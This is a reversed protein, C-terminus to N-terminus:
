LPLSVYKSIGKLERIAVALAVLGIIAICLKIGTMYPYWAPLPALDVILVHTSHVYEVHITYSDIGEMLVFDTPQEDLSVKLDATSTVLAKPVIITSAGITGTPGSLRVSIRKAVSDFDLGLVTSNTEVYMSYLSWTLTVRIKGGPLPEIPLGLPYMHKLYSLALLEHYSLEGRKARETLDRIYEQHLEQYRMAQYIEYEEPSLKMVKGTKVDVRYWDPHHSIEEKDPYEDLLVLAEWEELTMEAKRLVEERPGGIIIRIDGTRTDYIAILSEAPAFEEKEQALVPFGVSAINCLLLALLFAVLGKEDYCSFM